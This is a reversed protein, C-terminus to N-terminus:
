IGYKAELQDTLWALRKEGRLLRAIRQWSCKKLRDPELLANKTEEFAIHGKGGEQFAPNREDYVLMNFPM